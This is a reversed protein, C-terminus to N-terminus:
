SIGENVLGFYVLGLSFDRLLIKLTLSGLCCNFHLCGECTYYCEQRHNWLRQTFNCASFLNSETTFWRDSLNTLKIKKEQNNIRRHRKLTEKKNVWTQGILKNNNRLFFFVPLEQVLINKILDILGWKMDM